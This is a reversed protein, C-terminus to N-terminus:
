PPTFPYPSHQPTIPNSHSFRQLLREIYGPMSLDVYRKNYNWKLTLGLYKTGTWDIKMKYSLRAFKERMYGREHGIIM